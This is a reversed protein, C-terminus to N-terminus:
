GELGLVLMWCVDFLFLMLMEYVFGCWVVCETFDFMAFRPLRHSPAKMPKMIMAMSPNNRGMIPCKIPPSMAPSIARPMALPVNAPKRAPIKPPMSIVISATTNVLAMPPSIPPAIALYVGLASM